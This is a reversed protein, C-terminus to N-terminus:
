DIPLEATLPLILIGETLLWLSREKGMMAIAVYYELSM